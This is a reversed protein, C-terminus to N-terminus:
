LDYLNPIGSKGTSAKNSKVNYQLDEWGEWPLNRIGAM